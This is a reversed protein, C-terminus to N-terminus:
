DLTTGKYSRITEQVVWVLLSKTQARGTESAASSISKEKEEEPDSINKPEGPTGELISHIRAPIVYCLEGQRNEM